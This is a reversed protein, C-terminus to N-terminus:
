ISKVFVGIVRFARLEDEELVIPLYGDATTLPKLIIFEHKWGTADENKTSEYEKITYCSGYDADQIGSREVLVIQGNRSGWQLKSVPLLLWKPHGQEDVRGLGPLCVFGM